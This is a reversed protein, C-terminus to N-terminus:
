LCLELRTSLAPPEAPPDQAFGISLLPSSGKYTGVDIFPVCAGSKLSATATLMYPAQINVVRGLASFYINKGPPIPVSFRYDVPKIRKTSKGTEFTGIPETRVEITCIDLISEPGSIHLPKPVGVSVEGSIRISLSLSSSWSSTEEVNFSCTFDKEIEKDGGYNNAEEAQIKYFDDIIDTASALDYDLIPNQYSIIPDTVMSSWTLERDDGPGKGKHTCFTGDDNMVAFYDDTGHLSQTGWVAGRRTSPDKSDYVCFNGDEQMIAIYERTDLPLHRSCWFADKKDPGVLNEDPASGRYICFNGDYRMVAFFVGGPSVIYDGSRLYSGTKLHGNEIGKMGAVACSAPSISWIITGPSQPTGIHICFTGNDQVTAFFRGMSSATASGSDWMHGRNDSPGGKYVCFNGDTQMVAFYPGEDSTAGTDWMGNKSSDNPGTGSYVCFKGNKELTAFYRGNASRICGNVGMTQGSALYTGSGAM